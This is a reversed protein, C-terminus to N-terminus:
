VDYGVGVDDQDRQVIPPLKFGLRNSEIMLGVQRHYSDFRRIQRWGGEGVRGPRM